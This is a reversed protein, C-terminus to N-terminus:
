GGPRKQPPRIVYDCDFGAHVWIECKECFGVGLGWESAIWRGRNGMVWAEVEEILPWILGCDPCAFSGNIRRAREYGDSDFHPLELFAVLPEVTSISVAEGIEADSM